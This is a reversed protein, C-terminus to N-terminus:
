TLSIKIHGTERMYMRWSIVKAPTFCLCDRMTMYSNLHVFQKRDKNFSEKGDKHFTGKRDKQSNVKRDKCPTDKRRMM